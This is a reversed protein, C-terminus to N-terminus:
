HFGALGVGECAAVPRRHAHPPPRGIAPHEPRDGGEDGDAHHHGEGGARRSRRPHIDAVGEMERDALADESAGARGDQPVRVHDLEGKGAHAQVRM